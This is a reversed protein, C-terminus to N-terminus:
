RTATFGGGGSSIEMTPLEFLKASPTYGKPVRYTEILSEKFGTYRVQDSQNGGLLVILGKATKGVVFGVHGKGKKSADVKGWDIFAISGVAPKTLGDGWTKWSHSWASDAGAYGSQKIVWNVYSACWATEDTKAAGTTTGHYEVIRTNHKKGAIEKQGLEGEAVSVWEPKPPSATRLLSLPAFVNLGTLAHLWPPLGDGPNPTQMVSQAASATVTSSGQAEARLKELTRGDPDVVGDTHKMFSRQFAHIAKVTSSRGPARTISGDVGRPNLESRGRKQAVFELLLQVAKVDDSVNKAGKAWDGVPASITFGNHFNGGVRAIRELPNEAV